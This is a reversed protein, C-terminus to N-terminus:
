RRGEDRAPPNRHLLPAPPAPSPPDLQSGNQHRGGQPHGTAEKKRPARLQRLQLIRQHGRPLDEGVLIQFINNFLESNSHKMELFMETFIEDLQQENKFPTGIADILKDYDDYVKTSAVKLGEEGRKKRKEIKGEKEESKVAIHILAELLKV